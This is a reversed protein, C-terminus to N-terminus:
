SAEAMAPDVGLDEAHRLVRVKNAGNNIEEVEVWVLVRHGIMERMKRAMALGIPNDTRETRVQECGEPVGERARDTGTNLTIVGRTSSKEKKVSVVTGSFIKCNEIQTLAKGISGSESAMIAISVANEHVAANYAARDEYATVPGASMVAAATINTRTASDM